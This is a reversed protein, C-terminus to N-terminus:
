LKSVTYQQKFTNAYIVALELYSSLFSLLIAVSRTQEISQQTNETINGMGVHLNNQWKNVNLSLCFDLHDIKNM